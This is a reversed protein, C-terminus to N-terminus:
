WSSMVKQWYKVILGMVGGRRSERGLELEAFRDAACSPLAMIKKCFQGNINDLHGQLNAHSHVM